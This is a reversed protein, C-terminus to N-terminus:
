IISINSKHYLEFVDIM